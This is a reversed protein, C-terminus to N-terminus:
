GALKELLRKFIGSRKEQGQLPSSPGRTQDSNILLGALACGNYFRAVPAFGQPSRALLASLSMPQRILMGAWLLHLQTHELRAFNPWHRLRFRTQILTVPAPERPRAMFALSWGLEELSISEHRFSSIKEILDARSIHSIRGDQLVAMAEYTKSMRPGAAQVPVYAVGPRPDVLVHSSGVDIVTPNDSRKLQHLRHMVNSFDHTEILPLLDIGQVNGHKETSGERLFDPMSKILEILDNSIAPKALWPLDRQAEGGYIVPVPRKGRRANRIFVEAGPEDPNIFVVEAEAAPVTIFKGPLRQTALLLIQQLHRREREDFIRVAIRVLPADKPVVREDQIHQNLGTM